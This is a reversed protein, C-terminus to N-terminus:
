TDELRPQAVAKYLKNVDSHVTTTDQQYKQRYNSDRQDSRYMCRDTAILPAAVTLTTPTRVGCFTLPSLGVLWYASYCIYSDGM